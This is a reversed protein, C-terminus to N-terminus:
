SFIRRKSDGSRFHIHFMFNGIEIFGALKLLDLAILILCIYYMTERIGGIEIFRFRYSNLLYLVYIKLQGSFKGVLMSLIILFMYFM